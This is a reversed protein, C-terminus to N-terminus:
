VDNKDRLSNENKACSGKNCFNRSNLVKAFFNVGQSSSHVRHLAITHFYVLIYMSVNLLLVNDM